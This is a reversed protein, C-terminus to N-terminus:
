DEVDIESAIKAEHKQDLYHVGCKSPLPASVAGPKQLNKIMRLTMILSVGNIGASLGCFVAIILLM